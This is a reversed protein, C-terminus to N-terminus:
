KGLHSIAHTIEESQERVFKKFMFGSIVGSESIPRATNQNIEIGILGIEREKRYREYEERIKGWNIEDISRTALNRDSYISTNALVVIMIFVSHFGIGILGTAQDLGERVKEINDVFDIHFNSQKKKLIKVEIAATKEPEVKDYLLFDIDGPKNARNTFPETLHHLVCGNASIECVDLLFESFRDVLFTILGREACKLDINSEEIEKGHFFNYLNDADPGSIDYVVSKWPVILSNM